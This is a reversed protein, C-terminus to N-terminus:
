GPKKNAWRIGRIGRLFFFFGPKANQRPPAIFIVRDTYGHDSDGIYDVRKATDIIQKKFIAVPDRGLFEDQRHFDIILIRIQIL